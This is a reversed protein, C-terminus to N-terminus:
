LLKYSHSNIALSHFWRVKTLAVRFVNPFFIFALIIRDKKTLGVFQSIEVACSLNCYPLVHKLPLRMWSMLLLPKRNNSKTIIWLLHNPCVGLLTHRGRSYSHWSVELHEPHNARDRCLRSPPNQTQGCPPARVRPGLKWRISRVKSLGVPEINM